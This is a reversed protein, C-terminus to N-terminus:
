EHLLSLHPFANPATQCCLYIPSATSQLIKMAISETFKTHGTYMHAIHNIKNLSGFANSFSCLPLTCTGHSASPRGRATLASNAGATFRSILLISWICSFASRSLRNIYKWCTGLAFSAGSSGGSADIIFGTGNVSGVGTRGATRNTKTCFGVKRPERNPWFGAAVEVEAVVVVAESGLLSAPSM